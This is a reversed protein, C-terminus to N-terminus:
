YKNSKLIKSIINGIDVLSQIVIIGYKKMTHIKSKATDEEKNSIAGAHGMTRGKPATQGAIFGIIPKKINKRKIWKAAEQESKGGIEGIIFILDTESDKIFLKLINKIDSGIIQDGGIGIATSIGYGSKVIQYAAEYTLTGSRSIIGIKGKKFINEPMIGVKCEYPTIIGPCNPGILKSKKNNVFHKVKIMDLIPIGETICVILEVKSDLAELIADAAYTYPVFIISVNANTEKIAKSVTSFVPINLHKQKSKNPSVGAVIKSGYIIMQKSHFTAEKGTFGQVIIKSNKNILISM